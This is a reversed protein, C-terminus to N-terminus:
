LDLDFRYNKAEDFKKFIWSDTTFEWEDQEDLSWVERPLEYNFASGCALVPTVCYNRDLIKIFRKKLLDKYSPTVPAPKYEVVVSTVKRRQEEPHYYSGVIWFDPVWDDVKFDEPEYEWNTLGILEIGRIFIAESKSRLLVKRYTTPTADM